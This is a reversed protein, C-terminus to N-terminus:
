GVESYSGEVPSVFIKGDGIQKTQNSKIIASVVAAVQHDEVVIEFLRKPLFRIDASRRFWKRTYRLGGQRSRGLVRLTTYTTMGIDELAKRTVRAQQPRIIAIIEKM